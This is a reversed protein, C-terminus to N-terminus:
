KLKKMQGENLLIRATKISELVKDNTKDEPYGSWIKNENLSIREHKVGGYVMVGLSGNGISLAQTFSKAPQNYWLKQM